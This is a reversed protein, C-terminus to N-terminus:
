ISIQFLVKRGFDKHISTQITHLCHLPNIQIFLRRLLPPELKDRQTRNNVSCGVSAEFTQDHTLRFKTTKSGDPHIKFQKDDIGVPAIESNPLDNIFSIPIPVMWGQHVEKQIIDRLVSHYKVASKHNGRKIFEINKMKRDTESVALLPWKSGQQLQNSLSPWSRHHMLLPELIHIRRFESGYSMISNKNASIYQHINNNYQQLIIMNHTSAKDTLDFQLSVGQLTPIQSSVIEKITKIFGSPTDPIM